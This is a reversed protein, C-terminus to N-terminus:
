WARHYKPTFVMQVVGAGVLEISLPVSAGAPIEGWRTSSGLDTTCDAGAGVDALWELLRVSDSRVALTPSDVMKATLAAPDADVVLTSGEPVSFPIDIQRDGVGLAASTAGGSEGGHLLWLPRAPEDGPNTVEASAITSGSSIYFPPGGDEGFFSTGASSSWTRVVPAGHWFPDDAVLYLDYWAWGVTTPNGPSVDDSSVYRCRLTRREGSPQTVAWTGPREPDMTRWFARDHEIWAQSGEDAYLALPWFVEREVARSGRHRVGPVRAAATAFRQFTPKHTGRQGPRLLVGSSYPRSLDWVSGDWGTWTMRVGGWSPAPPPPPPTYPAVYIVSTM